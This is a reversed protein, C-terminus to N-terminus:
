IFMKFQPFYYVNKYKETALIIQKQFFSFGLPFASFSFNALSIFSFQQLLYNCNPADQCVVENGGVGGGWVSFVDM